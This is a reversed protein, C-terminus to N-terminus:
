RRNTAKAFYGGSIAGAVIAAAAYAEVPTEDGIIAFAIEITGILATCVIACIGSMTMIVRSTGMKCIKEKMYHM